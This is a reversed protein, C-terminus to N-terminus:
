VITVINVQISIDAPNIERKETNDAHELEPDGNFELDHVRTSHRFGTSDFSSGTSEHAGFKGKHALRARINSKVRPKRGDPKVFFKKPAEEEVPEDLEEVASAKKFEVRINANPPPRNAKKIGSFRRFGKRQNTKPEEIDIIENDIENDQELESEVSLISSPTQEPTPPPPSMTTTTLPSLSETTIAVTATTEEKRGRGRFGPRLSKFNRNGTSFSFRRRATTSVTESTPRSIPMTTDWSEEEVTTIDENDALEEVAPDLTPEAETSRDFNLTSSEVRKRNFLSKFNRNAGSRFPNNRRPASPRPSPALPTIQSVEESVEATTTTTSADTPSPFAKPRFPFSLSGTSKGRIPFSPFPPRKNLTPSPTTEEPSGIFIKNSQTSTVFVQSNPSLFKKPGLDIDNGINNFTPRPSAVFVGSGKDFSPSPSSFFGLSPAPSGKFVVSSVTSSSVILDDQQEFLDEFIDTEPKTTEPKSQATPLLSALQRIPNTQEEEMPATTVVEKEEEEKQEEEEIANVPVQVRQKRGRRLKRKGQTKFNSHWFNRKRATINSKVRPRRGGSPVVFSNKRFKKRLNKKPHRTNALLSNDEEENESVNESSFDDAAPATFTPKARSAPGRRRDFRAPSPRTRFRNGSPATFTTPEAEEEDEEINNFSEDDDTADTTPETRDDVFSIIEPTQSIGSFSKPTPVFFPHATTASPFLDDAFPDPSGRFVFPQPSSPSAFFDELFPKITTTDPKNRIEALLNGKVRPERGDPRVEPGETPEVFSKSAVNNRSGLNFRGRRRDNGFLKKREFGDSFKKGSNRFKAKLNSKVKPRRGDLSRFSPRRTTPPPPAATTPEFEDEAPPSNFTRTCTNLSTETFDNNNSKM